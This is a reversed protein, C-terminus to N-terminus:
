RETMYDWRPPHDSRQATGVRPPGVSRASMVACCAGAVVRRSGVTANEDSDVTACRANAQANKPRYVIKAQAIHLYSLYKSMRAIRLGNQEGM